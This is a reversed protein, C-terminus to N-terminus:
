TKHIRRGRLNAKPSEVGRGRVVCSRTDRPRVFGKVLNLHRNDPLKKAQVISINKVFVVKYISSFYVVLFEWSAFAEASTVVFAAGSYTRSKIM